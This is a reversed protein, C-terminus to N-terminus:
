LLSRGLEYAEANLSETGEPVMEAIADKMIDDKVISSVENMMGIAAINAPLVTGLEEEVKLTLPASHIDTSIFDEPINKVKFSDIIVKSDEKLEEYYKDCAEQSLAVFIDPVHVSLDFIKEPSIVVEGRCAGGRAEIGHSEGQVVNYGAKMCAEATIISALVLGQGGTGSFRVEFRENEKADM